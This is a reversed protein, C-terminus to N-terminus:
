VRDDEGEEEEEDVEVEAYECEDDDDDLTVQEELYYADDRTPRRRPRLARRTSTSPRPWRPEHAALRRPAACIARAALALGASRLEFLAAALGPTPVDM